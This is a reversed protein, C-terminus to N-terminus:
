KILVLILHREESPLNQTSMSNIKAEQATLKAMVESVQNSLTEIVKDKDERARREAALEAQLLKMQEADAAKRSRAAPLHFYKNITVGSGVGRAYGGSEKGFVETMADNGHALQLTGTKIKEHTDIQM